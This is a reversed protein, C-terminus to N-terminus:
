PEARLLRGAPRGVLEREEHLAVAQPMGERVRRVVVRRQVGGRLGDAEVREVIAGPLEQLVNDPIPVLVRRARSRAHHAHRRQPGVARRAVGPELVLHDGEQALAPGRVVLPGGPVNDGGIAQDGLLLERGAAPSEARPEDGLRHDVQRRVRRRAGLAARGVRVAHSARRRLRHEGRVQAQAAEVVAHSDGRRARAGLRVRDGHAHGHRSPARGLVGRPGPLERQRRGGHQLAAAHRAEAPLLHLHEADRVENVEVHLHRLVAHLPVHVEGHAM